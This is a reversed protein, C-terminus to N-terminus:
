LPVRRCKRAAFDAILDDYSLKQAVDGNISIVALGSLREQGVSSRMYTKILKLKSFSREASAVTVPLTLAIRLAIWLNPYVEQLGNNHLFTLMDLASTSTLCFEMNKKVQNMTEFREQLSMLASDVVCNFFTVELKKLADNLPEDAAEYAFHRKTSRVRKEKLETEINLAECLEKATSVAEDFGSQRYKSLNIKTSDILRVAVDLQMSSSQLLKNVQNTITLLECWVVSCIVFRFSAVEEALAQAEVKAVPDNVAERAELLADRVEHKTLISWRQTAGSFFNFLKQLYGFYGTADQSSKAADAIVLNMTHAGCPVFLARPNLQLLRTQVGQKKGRMNAGNDYAQGRCNEFPIGLEKLKITRLTESSVIQILENQIEHSLYHTHSSEDKIRALHNEMVPDYTAMLEVEKLFNGNDSEYLRDSSGRFVFKKLGTLSHNLALTQSDRAM